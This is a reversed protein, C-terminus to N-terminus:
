DPGPAMTDTRDLENMMKDLCEPCIGHSLRAESHDRVYSEMDRWRSDDQVKRCYACVSLIGELRKLHQRLGLIREAVRLRAMLEDEDVPKILFDDVGVDMAELYNVKGGHATLLLIYTYGAGGQDRIARCLQLGDLEPMKWDSIVVPCFQDRWAEWAQRGNEAVVVQHGAKQLTAELVLRSGADDEAILIKM